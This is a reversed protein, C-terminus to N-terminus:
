SAARYEAKTTSLAVVHQLSTKWSILCSNLMFMYGTLSRKKDLDRAFDFDVYGWLGASNTGKTRGYMLRYDLTGNLYRIM